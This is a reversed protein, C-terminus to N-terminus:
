TTLKLMQNVSYAVGDFFPKRKQNFCTVLNSILEKSDLFYIQDSFEDLVFLKEASTDGDDHVILPLRHELMAATAGSKGIVDYPTTSIGFDCQALEQSIKKASLEGSEVVSFGYDKSFKKIHNLGKIERQRGIIYINIPLKLSESLEKIKHGLLRYPFNDYPTGFIALDCSKKEELKYTQSLPINGFLYLYDAEIGAIALRDIAAANTSTIFNPNLNNFFTLIKLKQRWGTFKEKFSAKPYAGIWIEHFNIHTKQSNLSKAFNLINKKVVGNSSFAYPAFQISYLDHNPYNQIFDNPQDLHHMSAHRVEHGFDRLKESLLQIYDSIGCKGPNYTGSIICIRV